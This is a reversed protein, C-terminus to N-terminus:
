PNESGPRGLEYLASIVLVLPMIATLLIVLEGVNAVMIAHVVGIAAVCLVLGALGIMAWRAVALHRFIGLGGVFAIVGLAVLVALVVNNLPLDPPDFWFMFGTIAAMAGVTCFVLGFIRHLLVSNM